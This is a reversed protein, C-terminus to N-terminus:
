LLAISFTCWLGHWAHVVNRKQVVEYSRTPSTTKNEIVDVIVLLLEGLLFATPIYHSFLLQWIALSFVGVQVKEGRWIWLDGAKREYECDTLRYTLVQILDFSSPCWSQYIWRRPHLKKKCTALSTPWNIMEMMTEMAQVFVIGIDVMCVRMISSTTMILEIVCRKRRDCGPSQVDWLTGLTAFAPIYQGNHDNTNNSTM